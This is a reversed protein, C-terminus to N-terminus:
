CFSHDSRIEGGGIRKRRLPKAEISLADAVMKHFPEPETTNRLIIQKGERTTLETTVRTQASLYHRITAWRMYIGKKHLYWQICAVMHYALVTIFLHGEIRRDKQHYNPRLGLEGKMSRFSDEVDTLLIYLNWIEEASLDTRSTRLYYTGSFREEIDLQPKMRWKVDVAKGNESEVDIDYFHAVKKYREQARGIRALVKPYRKTGGKKYLAGRIRELEGEFREQFLTQIAEEKRRKKESRCFLVVEGEERVVSVEVKNGETYRVTVFGQRPAEDLPKNRAVCIYDYGEGRLHRLNEEKAIGADIIITKKEGGSGKGALRSVMGRLTEWEKVNGEFVESRKPFGEGDIVLGLTVVPCDNRKEKSRGYRKKKSGGVASEFYTNTLDYLIIREELSFLTRERESLAAEIEEKHDLLLDSVRYFRNHSLRGVDMGLLEGIASIRRAWHWTRLESSPYVMRGVISVGAVQSEIAGFGLESFIECLGTRKVISLSVHEAGITRSHRNIISNVDVEEYEPGAEEAVASLAGAPRGSGEETGSSSVEAICPPAQRNKLLEAYHHALPEIEEDTPSLSQQGTTIEEVRNALLKWKERPLTLKGLSLLMRQRPGRESRYSEMLAHYIFKRKYGKNRKVIQRIFM